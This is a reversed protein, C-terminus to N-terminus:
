ILNTRINDKRFMESFKLIHVLLQGIKVRQLCNTLYDTILALTTNYFGFAAFKAICIDSPLCDYAKKHDM